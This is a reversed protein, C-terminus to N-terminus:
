EKSQLTALLKRLAVAAPLKHVDLRQDTWNSVGTDIADFRVVDKGRALYFATTVVGEFREIAVVTFRHNGIVTSSYSTSPVPEGSAGRRATAQITALATSSAQIDYVRLDLYLSSTATLREYSGLMSPDRLEARVFGEPLAFALGEEPFSVNPPVCEAFTCSPGTRGVATGDPCLKAELTCGVPGRPNETINRYFFGAFAILVLAAIGLGLSKM